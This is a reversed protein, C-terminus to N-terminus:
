NGRYRVFVTVSIFADQYFGTGRKWKFTMGLDPQANTISIMTLRPVQVGIAALTVFPGVAGGAATSVGSGASFSESANVDLSIDIDKETPTILGATNTIPIVSPYFGVIDVARPFILPQRPSQATNSQLIVRTEWNWPAKPAILAAQGDDASQDAAKDLQALMQPNAADTPNKRAYDTFRRIAFSMNSM